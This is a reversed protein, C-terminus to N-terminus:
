VPSDSRVTRVQRSRSSAWPMMQVQSASMTEARILRASRRGWAPVEVKAQNAVVERLGVDHHELALERGKGRPDRSGRLRDRAVPRVPHL